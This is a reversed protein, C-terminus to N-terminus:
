SSIIVNFFGVITDLTQAHVVLIALYDIDLHFSVRKLTFYFLTRNM